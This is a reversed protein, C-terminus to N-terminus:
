VEPEVPTGLPTLTVWAVTRLATSVRTAWAPAADPRRTSSAAENPKSTAVKSSNAASVVPPLTSITRSTSSSVSRSVQSMSTMQETGDAKASSTPWSPSRTRGVASFMEPSTSVGARASRVRVSQGRARTM